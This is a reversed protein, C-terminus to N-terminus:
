DETLNKNKEIVLSFITKIDKFERAYHPSNDFIMDIKERECIQAKVPNWVEDAFHKGTEDETFPVNLMLLHTEISYYRNTHNTLDHLSLFTRMEADAPQGSIIYIVHGARYLDKLLNRYEEHTDLVGHVDFAIKM